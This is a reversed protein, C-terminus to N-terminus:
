LGMSRVASWVSDPQTCIREAEAESLGSSEMLIATREDIILSFKYNLEPDRQIAELKANEADIFENTHNIERQQNILLDAIDFGERKQEPTALQEIITSVQVDAGLRRADRAITQWASFGDGDPYLVIKRQGINRLREAKLWTKSHSGLWIFKPMCLSALIASKESEVIAVPKNLFKRLLHEGFFVQRYEFDGTIKGAQRLKAVLSSTDYDGKLRKGTAPNFRILKAKCIRNFRDIYPFSCYDQFTGVLYAKLVDSIEEASDPFLNLLFQVFANRDYSGLTTKFHEFSIYNPKREITQAECAAAPSMKQAIRYTAAGKTKRASGALNQPNDAFFQKPTRHYGCKSDRDCKGVDAALYRGDDGIYRVFANRGGCSPCAHKTRMGRYKELEIM